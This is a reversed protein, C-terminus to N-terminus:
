ALDGCPDQYSVKDLKAIGDRNCAVEGLVTEDNKNCAAEGLM